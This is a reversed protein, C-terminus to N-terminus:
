ACTSSYVSMSLSYARGCSRQRATAAHTVLSVMPVGMTESRRRTRALLLSSACNPARASIMDVLTHVMVNREGICSAGSCGAEAWLPLGWM